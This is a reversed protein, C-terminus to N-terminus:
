ITIKWLPIGICKLNGKNGVKETLTIGLCFNYQGITMGGMKEVFGINKPFLIYGLVILLLILLFIKIKRM